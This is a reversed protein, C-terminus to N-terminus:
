LEQLARKRLQNYEDETVLEKTLLDKLITLRVTLSDEGKSSIRPDGECQFKLENIVAQGKSGEALLGANGQRAITRNAREAEDYYQFLRYFAPLDVIQATSAM